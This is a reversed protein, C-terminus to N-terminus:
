EKKLPVMSLQLSEKTSSHIYHTVHFGKIDFWIKVLISNTRISGVFKMTNILLCKMDKIINKLKVSTPIKVQGNKNNRLVPM